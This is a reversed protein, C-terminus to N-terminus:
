VGLKLMVPLCVFHLEEVKQNNLIHLDCFPGSPDAPVLKTSPHCHANSDALGALGLSMM